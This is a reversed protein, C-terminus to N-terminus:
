VIWQMPFTYPVVSGSIDNFVTLRIAQLNYIGSSYVLVQLPIDIEEGGKLTWRFCECGLFHIESQTGSLAFEFEVSSDVM